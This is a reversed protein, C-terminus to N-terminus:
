TRLSFYIIFFVPLHFLACHVLQQRLESIPPKATTQKNDVLATEPVSIPNAGGEERSNDIVVPNLSTRRFRSFNKTTKTPKPNTSRSALSSINRISM